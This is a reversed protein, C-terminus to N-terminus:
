AVQVAVPCYVLVAVTLLMATMGVVAEPAPTTASRTSPFPVNALSLERPAQM